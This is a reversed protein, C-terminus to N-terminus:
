ARGEVKTHGITPVLAYAQEVIPVSSFCLRKLQEVSARGFPQVDGGIFILQIPLEYINVGDEDGASGFNKLLSYLRSPALQDNTRAQKYM